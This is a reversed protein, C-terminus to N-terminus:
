RDPREVPYTGVLVGQDVDLCVFRGILEYSNTPIRSIMVARLHVVEDPLEFAHSYRESPNDADDAM